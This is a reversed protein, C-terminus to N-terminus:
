QSEYDELRKKMEGFPIFMKSNRNSDVEYAAIFVNNKILSAELEIIKQQVLACYDGLDGTFASKLIFLDSYSSTTLNIVPSNNKPPLVLIKEVTVTKKKKSYDDFDKHSEILIKVREDIRSILDLFNQDILPNGDKAITNKNTAM